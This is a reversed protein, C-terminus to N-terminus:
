YMRPEKIARGSKTRRVPANDDDDNDDDDDEEDDEEVVPDEVVTQKEPAKKDGAFAESLLIFNMNLNPTTKRKRTKTLKAVEANLADIEDNKAALKFELNAYGKAITNYHRRITPSKKKKGYDRIQRSNKPIADLNHEVDRGAGVTSYMGV